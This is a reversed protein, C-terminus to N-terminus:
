SNRGRFCRPPRFPSEHNGSSLGYIWSVTCSGAKVTCVEVHSACPTLMCLQTNVHCGWVDQCSATHLLVFHSGSFLVSCQTMNLNILVHRGQVSRGLVHFELHFEMIWLGNNIIIRPPNASM